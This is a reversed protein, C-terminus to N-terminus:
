PWFLRQADVCVLNLLAQLQSNSQHLEWVAAQHNRAYLSWLESHESPPVLLAIDILGGEKDVNRSCCPSQIRYQGHEHLVQPQVYRYRKRQRLANELRPRIFDLVQGPAVSTRVRAAANM